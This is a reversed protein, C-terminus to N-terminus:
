IVDLNLWASTISEGSTMSCRAWVRHYGTTTPKWDFVLSEAGAEGILNQGSFLEIKSHAESVGPTFTVELPVTQGVQYPGKVSSSLAVKVPHVPVGELTPIISNISGDEAFTMEDIFVRRDADGKHCHYVCYWTDTGPLQITSHHGPGVVEIDRRNTLVPNNAPMKWPGLPSDSTAYNVRYTEDDNNTAFGGQSWMIYYIGNRKFVHTAEIHDLNHWGGPSKSTTITTMEESGFTVMDANLRRVSLYTRIEFGRGELWGGPVAGWYFYGQGDDDIFVMPDIASMDDRFDVIPAGLADEFPGIPSDGVAVGIRSNACFYFYYKGNREATCPAWADGLDAAWSIDGFDLIRGETKWNRLDTSSWAAFGHAEGEVKDPFAAKSAYIGANTAYIYYRDGYLDAHPDAAYVPIVPNGVTNSPNENTSM